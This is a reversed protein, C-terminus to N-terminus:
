EKVIKRTVIGEKTKVSIFYLGKNWDRTTLIIKNKASTEETYVVRGSIDYVSLGTIDNESIVTVQEKFPNPFLKYNLLTKESVSQLLTDIIQFEDIGTELINNGGLDAVQFSITTTATPTIFDKINVIEQHWSEYGSSNRGIGLVMKTTSGNNIYVKFSDTASAISGSEFFWRYFVLAPNTYTTLDLPPSTLVTPGGDVNFNTGLDAEIGTVYASNFCDADADRTPRISSGTSYNYMPPGLEWAGSSVTGSVNWGNDFTFDDYYMKELVIDQIATSSSLYISDCFTKYGWKSIMVLYDGEPIGCESVQGNVNTNSNVIYPTGEIKVHASTIALGAEDKATLLLTLTASPTLPINGNTIVQGNQFQVGSITKTQYGAKSISINYTGSLATGTKFEGNLDTTVILTDPGSITIQAGALMKNCATDKVSGEYYCARQYNPTLVFLGNQMDSVVLNGSPLFPYVGWAGIMDGGTFPNTDFWGVNVLNQPRHGDTIVVGDVYYSTVAYDNLIHTNHITSGENPYQSQIKDLFTVNNLDSIDYSALFSNPVEDTTFLTKKDLSLWSNHSFNNPTTQEALVLPNNKDRVDVVRFYGDYIHCAYLTDNDVYGDHVYGMNYAGAYTPNWPDSLDGIFSGYGMNSGHLYIFGKTTDVHLSHITNLTDAGSAPRWDHYVLGNTDPLSRLNIIQLGGGGETTVYAHKKYTKIERWISPAGPFLKVVKPTDPNTVDVISMGRYHGVLAYENGLSDVYGHINSLQNNSFILQSRFTINRNPVTQALISSTSLFFFLFCKLYNANM